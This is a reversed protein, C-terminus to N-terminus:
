LNPNNSPIPFKLTLISRNRKDRKLQIVHCLQVLSSHLRDIIQYHCSRVLVWWFCFDLCFFTEFNPPLPAINGRLKVISKFNQNLWNEINKLYHNLQSSFESRQIILTKLFKFCLRSSWLKMASLIKGSCTWYSM